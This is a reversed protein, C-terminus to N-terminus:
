ENNESEKIIEYQPLKSWNYYQALKKDTEIIDQLRELAYEYTNTQVLVINKNNTEVINYKTM